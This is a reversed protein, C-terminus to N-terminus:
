RSGTAKDKVDLTVIGAKRISIIVSGSPQDASLTIAAQNEESYAPDAVPYGDKVKSAYVQYNRLPLGSLEFQGNSDSKASPPNDLNQNLSEVVMVYAGAIPQGDQASFLERSEDTQIAASPPKLM